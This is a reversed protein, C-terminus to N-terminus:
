TAISHRLYQRLNQSTDLHLKKRIHIRVSSINNATKGLTSAIENLTKGHIVLRCVECEMPSLMPFVNGIEATQTMIEMERAKAARIINREAREDLGDFINAAEEKTTSGCSMAVYALLEHSGIRRPLRIGIASVIAVLVVAISNILILEAHEPMTMSIYIIKASLLTQMMLGYWIFAGYLAIWRRYYALAIAMLGTANATSLIILVKDNSGWLGAIHLTFAVLGTLLAALLVSLRRREGKNAPKRFSFASNSSWLRNNM